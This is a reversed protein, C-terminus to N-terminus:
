NRAPLKKVPVKAAVIESIEKEDEPSIIGYLPISFAGFGANHKQLFNYKYDIGDKPILALVKRDRFGCRVIKEEAEAIDQWKLPQNHDIKISNEDIVAMPLKCLYKYIWGLLSLAFLALLIQIQPWILLCPLKYICHALFLCMAINLVLWLNFKKFKYYFIKQKEM